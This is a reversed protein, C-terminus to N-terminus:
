FPPEDSYSIIPSHDIKSVPETDSGSPPTPAWEDAVETWNASSGGFWAMRFDPSSSSPRYGVDLDAIKTLVPVNTASGVILATQSPLSPLEETLAALNDPILRRVMDQDRVNVIRHVIFTNCQSLVTESLESPRQSSVVLSLGFKRGERAAREFAERCLQMATAGSDEQHFDSRRRILAHAEEIALLVPIAQGRNLRRSRELTELLVRVLVASVLHLVQAPVLSLDLVTIQGNDDGGLYGEIWSSLSEGSRWGCVRSLREDKLAIALRDAMPAVWNAADPGSDAALLQILEVMDLANFPLPRDISTSDGPVEPFGMKDLAGQFADLLTSCEKLNPPTMGFQWKYSGSGRRSQLVTGIAVGLSEIEQSGATQQTALYSCSSMTADLLSLADSMGKGDIQQARLARVVRRGAVIAVVGQPRDQVNSTRLLHLAQKLVPSQSKGSAEAFTAWERFNWLWFPVRLQHEDDTAPEVFYKKVVIDNPLDDFSSRYEGNLDLVITRFGHSKKGTMQSSDRILHALTCSKGSGTNGLIALHSGFLRNPDLKVTVGAALPARGITIGSMGHAAAPAAGAAEARTPMRVPDGVTPFLMVGRDLEFSDEVAENSPSSRRRLVGLPVAKIRRRPTPMGLHDSVTRNALPDVDIGLWVVLALVSGQESPLVVFGNIRPFRQITAETFSTGHPADSLVSVTIMSPAVAEVFGITSSMDSWPSNRDPVPFSTM